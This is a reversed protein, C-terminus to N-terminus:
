GRCCRTNTGASRNRINASAASSGTSPVEGCAPVLVVTVRYWQCYCLTCRVCMVNVILILLLMCPPCSRSISLINPYGNVTNSSEMLRLLLGNDALSCSCLLLVLGEEPILLLCWIVDVTRGCAPKRFICFSDHHTHVLYPWFPHSVSLCDETQM